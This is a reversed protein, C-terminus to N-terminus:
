RLGARAAARDIAAIVAEPAAHHPMHGVGELRTLAAGSVRAALPESHIDIPVITDEAGHVIEVPLDLGPYREAMEVIHPRLTKVQRTNARLSARRLALEAGFHRAYGQPVPQPAFVRTLASDIQGQPQLAAVMPILAAGGLLTGGVTYTASLSGPWPHSAGSVIVVGAPDHDLAWALAVAGGYSQGMVIPRRAGLQRAADALHAAQEAPSEARTTFPSGYAPDIQETWGHGPRDFVIVRYRDKIRDVFDFTYDRANGGAGHVIVLDPGDGTVVAHVLRGDVEIFQGLPPFRAEVRAEQFDARADVILGGGIAAAALAVRAASPLFTM